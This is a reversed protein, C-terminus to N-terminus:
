RVDAYFCFDRKKSSDAFVEFEVRHEGSAYKDTAFEFAKWGDGNEHRARGLTEGDVNVLLEIAAGKTERDILYPAGTFGTIRKGLKVQEYRVVKHRKGSPPHAWLCRRPRYNQDEIVTLGVFDWESASCQLRQAPFTAHGGLAGNTVRANSELTCATRDGGGRGIEVFVSRGLNPTAFADVFDFTVPQFVPNVRREVVFGDVRREQDVKWEPHASDAGPLVVEVVAAYRSDEPRAVDRLPMVEDGLAWRLNPEAWYPSITVLDGAESIEAVVPELAAYDELQPTRNRFYLHGVLEVVGLGPVSLLAWSWFSRPIKM